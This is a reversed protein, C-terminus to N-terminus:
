GRAPNPAAAPEAHKQQVTLWEDPYPQHDWPERTTYPERDLYRHYITMAEYHSDAEFTTLLRAGLELNRRCGDGNPGALCCTHLVM